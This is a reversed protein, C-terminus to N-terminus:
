AYRKETITLAKGWKSKPLDFDKNPNFQRVRWVDSSSRLLRKVLALMSGRGDDHIFVHDKGIQPPRNPNIVVQDGQEIAPSMSDGIVYFAFPNRVDQMLESRRIYDIPEATLIMAGDDGGSASAWVPIDARHALQDMIRAVGDPAELEERPASFGETARLESVLVKRNLKKSLGDAIAAYSEAKLSRVAGKLFHSVASPSLGGAASVARASLKYRAMFRQLARRERDPDYPLPTVAM